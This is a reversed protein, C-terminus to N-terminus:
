SRADPQHQSNSKSESDSAHAHPRNTGRPKPKRAPARAIKSLFGRDEPDRPKTQTVGRAKRRRDARPTARPAHRHTDPAAGPSVRRLARRDRAKSVGPGAVEYPNRGDMASWQTIANQQQKRACRGHGQKDASLRYPILGQGHDQHGEDSSVHDM